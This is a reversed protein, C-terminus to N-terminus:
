IDRLDFGAGYADIFRIPDGTLGLCRSAYLAAREPVTIRGLVFLRGRPTLRWWGTRGGDDRRAKESEILGWHQAMTQYGAQRALQDLEEHEKVFTSLQTWEFGRYRLLYLPTLVMTRNLKRLYVKAQQECCPCQVGAYIRDRLYQRAEALTVTEPLVATM